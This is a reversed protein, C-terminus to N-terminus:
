CVGDASGAEGREEGGDVIWEAALIIGIRTLGRSLVELLEGGSLNLASTRIMVWSVGCGRAKAM